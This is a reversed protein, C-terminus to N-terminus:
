NKIRAWAANLMLLNYVFKFGFDIIQNYLLLLLKEREYSNVTYEAGLPRNSWFDRSKTATLEGVRKDCSDM